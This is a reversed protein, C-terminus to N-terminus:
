RDFGIDIKPVNKKKNRKIKKLINLLNKGFRILLIFSILLYVSLFIQTYKITKKQIIEIPASDTLNIESTTQTTELITPAADMYIIYLPALFSFLVSGLLYFRNFDHMKEQELILHYFGLLLAM